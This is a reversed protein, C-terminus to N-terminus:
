HPFHLLSGTVPPYRSRRFLPDLFSSSLGVYEGVGIVLQFDSLEAGPGVPFAADIRYTTRSGAPFNFRLGGGLTSRWGSDVGYPAEGPWVRGIDGFVSTGVDAVSPIAWDHLWRDEISFVVRRGGPFAHESWGRVAHEGGLTLQFPLEPNWGGSGAARLLLTHNPLVEPQVYVLLEAEALVDKMPSSAPDEFSRRADGRFRSVLFLQPSGFGAYFDTALYLDDDGDIFPLARAAAVEIEAGVRVDEQGRFSDLGSRKRWTINRKGLLVVGRVSRLPTTLQLAPGALEASAQQRGEYDGGEVLTIRDAVDAPYEVTQIAVGGGVVTLDGRRGLRRLGAVHFGERHMPVLVRCTRVDAPCAASGRPLVYGFFRDRRRYWERVAWKGTEGLFPYRLEQHLLTGARTRGAALTLDWRSRFLQPTEYQLGYASTAEHVRYFFELEQGTGLINKERVEFEEFEIEGSMDFQLDVQTTWEDETDVVVHYSGDDQQVGYIDAHAIFGYGRLLRASEDILVPDFCDGLDFLLERRIFSKRTRVHLRNALGYAWRFAPDLGPESTDFIDHNDIFLHEIRGTACPDGPAEQAAAPAALAVALLAGILPIGTSRSTM